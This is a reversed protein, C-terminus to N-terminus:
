GNSSKDEEPFYVDVKAEYMLRYIDRQDEEDIYALEEDEYVLCYEYEDNHHEILRIAWERKEEETMNM